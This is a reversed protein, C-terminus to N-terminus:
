KACRFGLGPSRDWKSRKERRTARLEHQLSVFMGGRLVGNETDLKEAVGFPSGPYLSWSDFVWEAVNRALDMIGFPSKDEAISGVSTTEAAQRTGWKLSTEINNGWPFIRGDSGRAAYEWEAESPLRMKKWSCYATAEYWSVGNVPHLEKGVPYTGDKWTSPGPRGSQDIFRKVSEWGSSKALAKWLEKKQYGDDQVFQKYEANTVEFKSLHYASIKVPRAPTELYFIYPNKDTDPSIFQQILRDAQEVSIGMEFEGAPIYLMETKMNDIVIM